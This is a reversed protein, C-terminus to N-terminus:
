SSSFLGSSSRTAWRFCYTRLIQFSGCDYSTSMYSVMDVHNRTRRRNLPHKTPHAWIEQSLFRVFSILHHLFHKIVLDSGLFSSRLAEISCGCDGLFSLNLLKTKWEWRRGHKTKVREHSEVQPVISIFSSVFPIGSRKSTHKKGPLTCVSCCLIGLAGSRTTGFDIWGGQLIVRSPASLMRISACWLSRLDSDHLQGRASGVEFRKVAKIQKLCDQFFRFSRSVHFSVHFPVHFSCLHAVYTLKLAQRAGEVREDPGFVEHPRELTHSTKVGRGLAGLIVFIFRLPCM